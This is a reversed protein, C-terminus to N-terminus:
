HKGAFTSYADWRRLLAGFVSVVVLALLIGCAIELM